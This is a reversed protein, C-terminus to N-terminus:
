ASTRQRVAEYLGIAVAVSANLSALPGPMPLRALEDCLRKVTKRLGKGEAGVVLCAERRLDVSDITRAGEMDLGVIVVGRARLTELAGTLSAVRCLTAHEIGGASARFMAPSLPASRHEPWVVATAGMAVSSRVVAGFNQPDQVEDLAVILTAPGVPLEDVSTLTLDPALAITGQHRVGRALRDLQQRVVREVRVGQDRAYRALADLQPSGTSETEVFVRDLKRGHARIAERVPQLGCVIRGRTEDAPGDEGIM